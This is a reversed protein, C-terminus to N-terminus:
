PLEEGITAILEASARPDLAAKAVRDYADRFGESKPSELFLRGARNEQYAVPPYPAPMRFVWFSGDVGPHLGVSAPLVRVDIRPRRAIEALHALQTRHLASGGISRRLASEDVITEIYPHDERELMRQRELRLALGKGIVSEAATPGEVCRIVLEAYEPLQFLGPVVLSHYSSIREARSELWPVDIFGAHSVEGDNQDWRDIRWIEDAVALMRARAEANYFGYINLLHEVDPRQIPWEAREFRGLASRDRGLMEAALELSLKRKERLHRLHLGLWQARLTRNFMRTTM